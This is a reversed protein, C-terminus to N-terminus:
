ADDHLPPCVESVGAPNNPPRRINSPSRVGPTTALPLAFFVVTGQAPITTLECTGGIEALRQRMHILGSRKAEGTALDFGHGNDNIEITLVGSQVVVRVRVEDAGSHKLVNNIAEGSALLVNHRVSAPVEQAPLSPPASFWCRVKSGACLDRAAQGLYEVLSELNDNQPRVAWVIEDLSRTLGRTVESIKTNQTRVEAADEASGMALTSLLSIQTLRAGIEDHMDRAIRAREQELAQQQELAALRRRLRRRAGVWSLAAAIALLGGGAAAQVWGREYFLPVVQVQLGRAWRRWDGSSAGVMAEFEYHGPPLHGYYAVRRTGAEIWDNDFGQLRYRFRLSGPAALNPCTYHFELNRIRSTALLPGHLPVPRPTGDVSVEELVLDALKESPPTARPDYVALSRQNVFWLRGDNAASIVPQGSGSCARYDLGDAVSFWRCVLAPTRGREYRALIRRPCGFFGNYSTMWLTNDADEVIGNITDDPLGDATTIPRLKGNTLRFLGGGLTGVWVGGDADCWLSRADPNALGEPARYRDVRNSRLCFLGDAVTGVWLNGAPDQALSRIEWGSKQPGLPHLEFRDSAAGATEAPQRCLPGSGTSIWLLGSRDEFLALVASALAPPGTVRQFRGAAYAFLGSHTGCWVNTQRDVLVSHVLVSALGEARGFHAFAGQYFRFLGAGDTGVWVSGDAAACVTNILHDRAPEPLHFTRIPRRTLRHLGDGLTGVWVAGQRDEFLSNVRCQALPGVPQPHEWKGARDSCLVGGWQTGLWVRGTHDELLGTVTSRPSNTVWPTPELGEFVQGESVRVVTGGGNQWSFHPAAIWIGGSRAPGFVAPLNGLGQAEAAQRWAGGTWRYLSDGALLWPRRGADAVLAFYPGAPLKPPLADGSAQGKTIRMLARQDPQFWISGAADEALGVARLSRSHTSRIFPRDREAGATNAPARPWTAPEFLGNTLWALAGTEGAIWLKGTSDVLLGAIREGLFSGGQKADFVTFRVGDFRALGKFTGVWLYGDPTQALATINGDPLGHETHWSGVLFGTEEPLSAEQASAGVLALLVILSAAWGYARASAHRPCFRAM